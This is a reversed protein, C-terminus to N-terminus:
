GVFNRIQHIDYITVLQAIQRYVLAVLKDIQLDEIAPRLALRYYKKKDIRSPTACPGCHSPKHVTTLGNIFTDILENHDDDRCSSVGAAGTPWLRNIAM